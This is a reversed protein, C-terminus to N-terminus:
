SRRSDAGAAARHQAPVMAYISDFDQNYSLADRDDAPPRRRGRRTTAIAPDALYQQHVGASLRPDDRRSVADRRRDLRRGRGAPRAAIDRGFGPPIEIAAELEGDRLRQELDADDAIPPKEVFYTSGRFEELYARSEPTQDRDLM